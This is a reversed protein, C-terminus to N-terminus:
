KLHGQISTILKDLYEYVTDVILEPWTAFLDKRIVAILTSNVQYFCYQNYYKDVEKKSTLTQAYNLTSNRHKIHSIQPSPISTNEFINFWM